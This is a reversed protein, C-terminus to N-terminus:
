LDKGTILFAKLFALVKAENAAFILYKLTLAEDRYFVIEDNAFGSLSAVADLCNYGGEEVQSRYDGLKNYSPKLAKGYATEYIGIVGVPDKGHRWRSGLFSSFNLSKHLSRATYHGGGYASYPNEHSMLPGNRVLSVWNPTPSGHCFLRRDTINEKECYEEFRRDSWHSRVSVVAYKHKKPAAFQKLLKIAEEKPTLEMEVDGFASVIKENGGKKTQTPLMAEMSKLITEWYDVLAQKQDLSTIQFFSVDVKGGAGKFSVNTIAVLDLSNENVTELNNLKKFKEWTKWGSSIQRRGFPPEGLIWSETDMTEALAAKSQGKLFDYVRMVTSEPVELSEMEETNGFLAEIREYEEDEDYILDTYDKYGMELLQYYKFWYFCAPFPEKISYVGTVTDAGINTGGTEGFQAGVDYTKNGMSNPIINFLQHAGTEPDIKRMKKTKYLSRELRISSWSRQFSMVAKGGGDVFRLVATEGNETEVVVDCPETPQHKAIYEGAPKWLSEETIGDYEITHVTIGDMKISAKAKM